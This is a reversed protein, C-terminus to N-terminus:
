RSTPSVSNTTAKWIHWLRDQQATTKKGREHPESEFGLSYGMAFQCGANNVNAWNLEGDEAMENEEKATALNENIFYAEPNVERMAAHLRKMREVRPKTTPMQARIRGSNAYSDNDGLGKVLDFRFGDVRFEELWFRLMDPGSASWSRIARTGTTSCATPM